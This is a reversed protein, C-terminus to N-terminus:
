LPSDNLCLCVYLRGCLACRFLFFRLWVGILIHASTLCSFFVFLSWVLNSVSCFNVWTSRACCTLGVSACGLSSLLKL